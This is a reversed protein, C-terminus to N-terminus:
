FILHTDLQHFYVGRYAPTKRLQQALAMKENKIKRKYHALSLSLLSLTKREEGRLHTEDISRM